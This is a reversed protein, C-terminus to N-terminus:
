KVECVSQIQMLKPVACRVYENYGVIKKVGNESQEIPEKLIGAHYECKDPTCDKMNLLKKFGRCAVVQMVEKEETGEKM